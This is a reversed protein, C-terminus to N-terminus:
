GRDLRKIEQGGARHYSERMINLVDEFRPKWLGYAYVEIKISKCRDGAKGHIRGNDCSCPTEQLEGDNTYANTLIGRGLCKPCVDYVWELLCVECLRDLVEYPANQWAKRQALRHARKRILGLAEHYAGAMNGAYLKQLLVGLPDSLAAATIRDADSEFHKEGLDSSNFARAISTTIGSM